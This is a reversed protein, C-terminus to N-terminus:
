KTEPFNLGALISLEKYSYNGVRINKNKMQKVLKKLEERNDKVLAILEQNIAVYESNIEFYHNELYKRLM